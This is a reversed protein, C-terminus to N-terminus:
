KKISAEILEMNWKGVELMLDGFMEFQDETLENVPDVKGEYEERPGAVKSEGTLFSFEELRDPTAVIVRRALVEDKPTAQEVTVKAGKLIAAPGAIAAVTKELASAHPSESPTKLEKVGVLDAIKGLLLGPDSQVDTSQEDLFKRIAQREALHAFLQHTEKGEDISM